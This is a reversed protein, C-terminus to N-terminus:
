KHSSYEGDSTFCGLLNFMFDVDKNVLGNYGTLFKFEIRPWSFSLVPSKVKKV